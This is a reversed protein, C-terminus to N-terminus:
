IDPEEIFEHFTLLGNNMAWKPKASFIAKLRFFWRFNLTGEGSVWDSSFRLPRVSSSALVPRSRLRGGGPNTEKKSGGEFTFYPLTFNNDEITILLQRLKM